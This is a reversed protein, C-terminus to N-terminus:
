HPAVSPRSIDDLIHEFERKEEQSLYESNYIELIAEKAAEFDKMERYRSANDIKLHRLKSLSHCFEM